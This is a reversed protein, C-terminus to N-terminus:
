GRDAEGFRARRRGPPPRPPEHARVSPSTSIGARTLSLRQGDLIGASELTESPEIARGGETSLEWAGGDPQGLLAALLPALETIASDATVVFDGDGSTAGVSVLRTPRVGIV